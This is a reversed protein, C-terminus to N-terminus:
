DGDLMNLAENRKQLNEKFIGYCALTKTKSGAARVGRMTMCLNESEIMVMVGKAKAKQYFFKAIQDTLREQVQLRKAFCDIIRAFKSLGLIKGEDPIYSISVTGIFPLLHHECISYIPIDKIMITESECAQESFFKLHKCPDNDMGSLLELYMNAIRKPTERLGERNINEGFAVLLDYVAKEIKKEDIMILFVDVGM